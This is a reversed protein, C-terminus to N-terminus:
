NVSRRKRKTNRRRKRKRGEESSFSSESNLSYSNVSSLESYSFSSDKRRRKTDKRKSRRDRDNRREKNAISKNHLEKYIESQKKAAIEVVLKKGNHYLPTRAATTTAEELEFKVFAFRKARGTYKDIPIHIHDIDGFVGFIEKITDKNVDSDFRTVFLTKEKKLGYSALILEKNNPNEKQLELTKIEYRIEDKRKLLYDRIKKLNFKIEIQLEESIKYISGSTLRNLMFNGIEKEDHTIAKNHGAVIGFLGKKIDFGLLITSETFYGHDIFIDDKSDGGVKYYSKDDLRVTRVVEGNYVVKVDFQPYLQKFDPFNVQSYLWYTLDNGDRIDKRVNMLIKGLYNNGKNKVSGWYLNAPSETNYSNVLERDGTELLEQKLEKDRIFKDRIIIEMVKLRRSEWDKPDSIQQGLVLVERTSKDGTFQKRFFENDTRAAQFANFANRFMLGEYCIESEYENNLFGFDGNFNDIKEMKQKAFYFRTQDEFYKDVEEPNEIEELHKRQTSRIHQEEQM